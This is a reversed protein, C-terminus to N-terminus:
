PELCPMFHFYSGADALAYGAREYLARAADNETQTVVEVRTAGLERCRAHALKVLAGGVGRGRESAAASVLGLEAVAERVRLTVLGVPTTGRRAVLVDTALEGRLSKALWIAYMEDCKAAPLRPDTRFRSLAGAAIGLETLAREPAQGRASGLTLGAPAEPARGDDAGIARAYRAHGGVRRGAYRALLAPDPEASAETFWYLLWIGDHRAQELARALESRELTRAAIRAVPREYHSSDWRLAEIDAPRM